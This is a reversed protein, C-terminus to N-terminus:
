KFTIEIKKDKNRIYFVGQRRTSAKPVVTIKNNSELKKLIAGVKKPLLSDLIGYEYLECNTLTKKQYIHEIFIPEELPFLYQQRDIKDLKDLVELFKEAGLIHRTSFLL